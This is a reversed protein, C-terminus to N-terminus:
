QKVYCRHLIVIFTIRGSAATYVSQVCLFEFLAIVAGGCRILSQLVDQLVM